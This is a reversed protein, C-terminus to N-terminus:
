DIGYETFLSEKIQDLEGSERMAKLTADIQPMLEAFPSDKAIFLHWGLRRISPERLTELEDLVGAQRAQYRFMEAQEIYLDARNYALLLPIKAADVNKQVKAMNKLMEDHWGSGLMHVHSIDPMQELDELTKVQKLQELHPNDKGTHMVFHTEYFPQSSAITYEEREPTPVTFFGDKKGKRVLEQCRKWPCSEHKVELGMRKSLVADVFDRQIGFAVGYDDWAFPKYDAGYTITLVREAHGDLSISLLLSFFLLKIASFGSKIM